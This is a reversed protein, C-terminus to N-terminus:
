ESLKVIFDVEVFDSSDLVIDEDHYRETVITLAEDTTEAEVNITRALIEIIEVTYKINILGKM